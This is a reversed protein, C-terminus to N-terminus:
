YQTTSIELTNKVYIKIHAKTLKNTIIQPDYSTTIKLHSMGTTHHLMYYASLNM